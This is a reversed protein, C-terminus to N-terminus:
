AAPPLDRSQSPALWVLPRGAAQAERIERRLADAMEDLHETSFFLRPDDDPEDDTSYPAQYEM